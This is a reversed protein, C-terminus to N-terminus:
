DSDFLYMAANNDITYTGAEFKKTYLTMNPGYHLYSGESVQSWGNVDVNPWGGYRHRFLYATTATPLYLTNADNTNIDKTGYLPMKKKLWNPFNQYYVTNSNWPAGNDITIFDKENESRLTLPKGNWRIM